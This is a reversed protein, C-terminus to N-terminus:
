TRVISPFHEKLFDALRCVRIQESLQYDHTDPTIIFNSTTGLDAFSQLMGKALKPASTHKVEIGVVPKGGRVLVLDCEAGEHTRYYFADM